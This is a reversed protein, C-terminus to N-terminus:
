ISSTSPAVTRSPSPCVRGSASRRTTEGPNGGLAGTVWAARVAPMGTQPSSSNAQRSLSGAPAGHSNTVPVLPLVVVVSISADISRAAPRRVSATPFM